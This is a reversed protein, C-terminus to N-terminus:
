LMGTGTMVWVAKGDTVPSPSSMNQKMEKHNGASLFKKWLLAGRKKDVAWLYLDSRNAEAVNLFIVDGWVIPTAGSFDPMALKWSINEDPNWRLPLNKEHSVGTLDPGRWQPWNEARLWAGHLAVMMLVACVRSM